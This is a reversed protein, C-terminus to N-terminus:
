EPSSGLPLLLLRVAQSDAEYARKPGGLVQSGSGCDCCMAEIEALPGIMEYEAACDGDSCVLLARFFVEEAAGRTM